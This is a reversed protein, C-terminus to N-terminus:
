ANSSQRVFGHVARSSFAGGTQGRRAQRLAQRVAVACSRRVGARPATPCPRTVRATDVQRLRAPAAMQRACGPPRRVCSGQLKFWRQIHGSCETTHQKIVWRRRRARSTLTSSPRRTVCWRGGSRGRKKQLQERVGCLVCRPYGSRSKPLSLRCHADEDVVAPRGRSLRAQSAFSALLRDEFTAARVAVRARRRRPAHAQGDGRWRRPASLVIM